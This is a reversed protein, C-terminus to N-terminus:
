IFYLIGKLHLFNGMFNVFLFMSTVIMAKVEQWQKENVLIIHSGNIIKAGNILM